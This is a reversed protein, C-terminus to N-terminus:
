CLITSRLASHVPKYALRPAAAVIAARRTADFIQRTAVPSAGGAFFHCPCVCDDLSAGIAKLNKGMARRGRAAQTRLERRRERLVRGEQALQLRAEHHGPGASLSRGVLLRACSDDRRRAWLEALARLIGAARMRQEDDNRRPRRADQEGLEQVPPSM